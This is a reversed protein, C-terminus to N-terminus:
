TDPDMYAEPEGRVLIVTCSLKRMIREARSRRWRRKERPHAGLVVMSPTHRACARSVARVADDDREAEVYVRTGSGPVVADAFRRLHNRAQTVVANRGCAVGTSNLFGDNQDAGAAHFLVVTAGRKEAQGMAWAFAVRSASSFDVPVLVREISGGTLEETMVSSGATDVRQSVM